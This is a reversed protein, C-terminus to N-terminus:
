ECFGRRSYVTHKLAYMVLYSVNDKLRTDAGHELLLKVVDEHGNMSAYM